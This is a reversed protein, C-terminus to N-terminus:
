VGFKFLLLGITFLSRGEDYFIQQFSYLIHVVFFQEMAVDFGFVYNNYM